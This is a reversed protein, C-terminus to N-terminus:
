TKHWRKHYTQNFIFYPPHFIFSPFFLLPHQKILLSRSFIKPHPRLIKWEPRCFDVQGFHLSFLCSFAQQQHFVFTGWTKQEWRGGVLEWKGVSSEDSKKEESWGRWLEVTIIVWSITEKKGRRRTVRNTNIKKTKTKKELWSDHIM